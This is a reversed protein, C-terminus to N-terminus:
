SRDEEERAQGKEGCGAVGLPFPDVVSNLFAQRLGSDGVELRNDGARHFVFSVGLSHFGDPLLNCQFTIDLAVLGLFFDDLGLEGFRWLFHRGDEFSQERVPVPLIELLIAPPKHLAGRSGRLGAFIEGGPVERSEEGFDILM